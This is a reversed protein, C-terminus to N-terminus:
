KPQWVSYKVVDQNSYKEIFKLISGSDKSWTCLDYNIFVDNWSKFLPFHILINRIFKLLDSSLEAEMPPRKKKIEEIVFRIPEYYLLETYISILDKIYLFRVEPDFEWFDKTSIKESIDFFRSYALNLFQLEKKNPKLNSIM